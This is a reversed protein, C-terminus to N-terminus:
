PQMSVETSIAMIGIRYPIGTLKFVIYCNTWPPANQKYMRCFNLIMRQGDPLDARPKYNVVLPLRTPLSSISATPLAFPMWKRKMTFPHNTLGTTLVPFATASIPTSVMNLKRKTGHRGAYKATSPSMADNHIGHFFLRLESKYDDYSKNQVYDDLIVYFAESM